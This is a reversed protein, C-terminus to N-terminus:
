ARAEQARQRAQQEFAVAEFATDLGSPCLGRPCGTVHPCDGCDTHTDNIADRQLLKVRRAQRHISKM